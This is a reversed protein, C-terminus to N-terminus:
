SGARNGVPIATDRRRAVSPPMGFRRTFQDTLHSHHAFGAETAIRSLDGGSPEMADLAARLRIDTLYRHVTTGTEARFVRALHYPSLHVSRAIEELTVPERFRTGLVAKAEEAAERRAAVASGRGATRSPLARPASGRAEARVMAGISLLLTELVWMPDPPPHSRLSWLIRRHALRAPNPVGVTSSAFGRGGPEGDDEAQLDFLLREDMGVVTCHDGTPDLLRRGYEQGPRYLVAVNPDAVFPPGGEHEIWVPTGPFAILPWRGTTNTRSWAPHEPPCDFRSLVLGGGEYLIQTTRM